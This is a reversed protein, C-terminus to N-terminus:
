GPKRIVRAVCVVDAARLSAQLVLSTRELSSNHLADIKKASSEDSRQLANTNSTSTVM